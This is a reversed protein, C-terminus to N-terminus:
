AKVCEVVAVPAGIREHVKLVRLGAEKALREFDKRTREKGGIVLMVFDFHAAMQSPPSGVVQEVILLRSDPAMANAIQTLMTICLDDGYDHLCRRLHYIHASKVPQETNFDHAMMKVGRLEEVDLAKAAEVVDERDQVVCREKPLWVNEECIAQVAHGKGGGVDVLVTRSDDECLKERVWSYDYLGTMPMMTEATKMAMMFARMREPDQNMIDWVSKDPQNNAFSYPNNTPGQPERLSYKAFYNPMFVWPMLTEDFVMRFLFSYPSSNIYIGSKPTHAVQDDGVQRLIRSAVLMGGVRRLLPEDADLKKALEAYSVAGRAPIEDFVNWKLFLRAATMAGMVAAQEIWQEEPLTAEYLVQQAAAVIAMRKATNQGADNTSNAFDDVAATLRASITELETKNAPM